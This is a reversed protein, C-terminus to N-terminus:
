VKNSIDETSADHIQIFIGGVWAGLDDKVERNTPQDIAFLPLWNLAFATNCDTKMQRRPWSFHIFFFVSVIGALLAMDENLGKKAHVDLFSFAVPPVQM